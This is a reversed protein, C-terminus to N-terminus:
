GEKIMVCVIKTVILENIRPVLSLIKLFILFFGGLQISQLFHRGVPLLRCELIKFKARNVLELFQRITLRNLEPLTDLNAWFVQAPPIFQANLSKQLEVQAAARVLNQESFILHPWPFNIWGDLHAGWPSYFPPFYLYLYGNPRLVRYCEQLVSLPDVVHEFVNVSIIADFSNDQFPLTLGDAIAVCIVGSSKGQECALHAAAFASFPRLDVGIVKRAGQEAYFPLKGGLGCGVDLLRKGQLEWWPAFDKYIRVIEDYEWKQYDRVTRKAQLLEKHVKTMPILANLQLICRVILSNLV